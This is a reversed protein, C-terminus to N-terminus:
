ITFSAPKDKSGERREGQAREGGELHICERQGGGLHGRKKIDGFAGEQEWM